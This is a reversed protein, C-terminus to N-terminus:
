VFELGGRCGGSGSFMVDASGPVTRAEAHVRLAERATSPSQLCFVGHAMQGQQPTLSESHPQEEKWPLMESSALPM